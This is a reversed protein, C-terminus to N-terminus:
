TNRHHDSASDDDAADSGQGREALKTQMAAYANPDLTVSPDHSAIKDLPWALVLVGGGDDSVM